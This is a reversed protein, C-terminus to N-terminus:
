KHVKGILFEAEMSTTIGYGVPCGLYTIVERHKVVKCGSNELWPPLPGNLYLPIVMSKSLNLCAGSIREYVGIVDRICKFNEEKATMFISTDDTFLQHTLQEGNRMPIGELERTSVKHKLMTMVPKTSITFLLSSLPCGQRVGMDLKISKTFWGNVHVKSEANEVLGKALRILHSNYGLRKMTEWIFLHEIRNSAKMFNAKLMIAELKTKAVWEQALRYTLLNDLINRGELFGTQQADKVKSTPKKIRNALFKACLKETLTLM